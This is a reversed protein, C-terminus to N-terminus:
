EEASESDDRHESLLKKLKNRLPAPMNDLTIDGQEFAHILEESAREAKKVRSKEAQTRDRHITRLKVLEDKSPITFQLQYGSKRVADVEEMLKTMARGSGCLRVWARSRTMGTFLINRLKILEYGAYCEEANLFYVMPAENGKARYIQAIAISQNVFLEDVSTTAGALHSAIGLEALADIVRRSSSRATYATPLVVLIDDYDLQDENLNKKIETAVWAAQEFENDFVKTVVADEPNLLQPFYAPYSDNKRRLSVKAGLELNGNVVEYGIEEWLKPDDFHQVLSLRRYVGFGLAHALTLSWPSNRYCVPLIIDQRPRATEDLTVLPKGHEDAGFLEATSPTAANSLNQLEDYAWVIRHPLKTFRHVLRFFEQPLDQAEDILVADFIPQPRKAETSALLESCVGKFAGDMGYTAKAYGYDRVVVGAADAMVTYLGARDRGGWSHLIRLKEWDPEDGIHEFCFRRILDKFQQHLARSYFSVAIEWDPHQTHLYAAKLALVVTKGSGALGRIKQPGEPSEIAAQKQWQDLNAIEKEIERLLSGRSGKTTAGARRKRPKITTVRQLAANLAKWYEAPIPEVDNLVTEVDGIGVVQAESDHFLGDPPSIPLVTIVTPVVALERNRRLSAHRGLSNKAAYYIQDQHERIAAADDADTPAPIPGGLVFIM